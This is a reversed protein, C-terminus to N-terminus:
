SHSKPLATMLPSVSLQVLSMLPVIVTCVHLSACVCWFSSDRENMAMSVHNSSTNRPPPSCCTLAHTGLPDHNIMLRPMSVQTRWFTRCILTGM